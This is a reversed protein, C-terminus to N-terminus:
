ALKGSLNLCLKNISRWKVVKLVQEACEEANSKIAKGTFRIIIWGKSEIEDQRNKDKEKDSHWPGAGDCEIGVKYEPFAVDIFFYRNRGLKDVVEREIPYQSKYSAGMKDFALKMLTELTNQGFHKAGLTSAAKKKAEPASGATIWNKLRETKEVETYSSWLEKVAKRIKDIRQPSKSAKLFSNTFLKLKQGRDLSGWWRKRSEVRKQITEKSQKKGKLKISNAIGIKRKTGESLPGRKRGIKWLNFHERSCFNTKNISSKVKEISVGCYDCYVLFRRRLM